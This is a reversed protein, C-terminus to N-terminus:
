DETLGLGAARTSREKIPYRAGERISRRESFWGATV